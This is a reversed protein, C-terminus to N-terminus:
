IIAGAWGYGEEVGIGAESTPSSLQGRGLPRDKVLAYETLNTNAPKHNGQHTPFNKMRPKKNRILHQVSRFAKVM